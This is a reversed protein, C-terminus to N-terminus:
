KVKCLITINEFKDFLTVSFIKHSLNSLFFIEIPPLPLIQLSHHFSAASSQKYLLIAIEQKYLKQQCTSTWVSAAFYISFIEIKKM